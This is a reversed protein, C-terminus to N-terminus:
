RLRGPRARVAVVQRTVVNLDCEYVHPQWAGFGNQFEIRDGLYTVVNRNGTPRSRSFKPELFGDTWRHTYQALREVREPCRVLAAVEGRQAPTQQEADREAQEAAREQREAGKPDDSISVVVFALLLALFAILVVFEKGTREGADSEPNPPVTTTQNGARQATPSRRCAACLSPRPPADPNSDSPVFATPDWIQRGCSSCTLDSMPYCGGACARDFLM